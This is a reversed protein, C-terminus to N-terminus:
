SKGNSMPNCAFIITLVSVVATVCLLVGIAKCLFRFTRNSCSDVPWTRLYLLILSLKTCYATFIYLSQVAFFWQSSVNALHQVVDEVTIRVKSWQLVDPIPVMWVDKGLGYMVM